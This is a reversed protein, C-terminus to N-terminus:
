HTPPVPSIIYIEFRTRLRRRGVGQLQITGALSALALAQLDLLALDFAVGEHM